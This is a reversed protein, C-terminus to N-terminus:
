PILYISGGGKRSELTNHASSADKLEFPLFESVKIIEDKFAKFVSDAMNQYNKRNGFYHFLIPRSISLSKEALTTMLVPKVPGSSQGFNILYGCHALSSLSSGFTDNGVSDFVIDVGKGNTVDLVKESFKKDSSVFTEICGNLKTEEIKQQSGVSGIVKVGMASAWQCLLRGVGGSAATVLIIKSSDVLTIRNILMEVTMARLFSTAVLKDSLFDPIKIVKDHSINIHSAYAGYERTCFTVREGVEFGEVNDGIKEVIGSAECGPIGPLTLTKYLGSRVYVDHYNVGIATNKIQIQNALPQDIDQKQYTLVESSGYSNVVIAKSM